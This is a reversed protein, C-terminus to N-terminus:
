KIDKRYSEAILWALIAWIGSKIDNTFTFILLNVLYIITSLAFIVKEFM